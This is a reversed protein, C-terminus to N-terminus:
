VVSRMGQPLAIDGLRTDPMPIRRTRFRLTKLAESPNFIRRTSPFEREAAIQQVDHSRIRSKVSYSDGDRVTQKLRPDELLLDCASLACM